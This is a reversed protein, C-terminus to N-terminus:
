VPAATTANTTPPVAFPPMELNRFLVRAQDMDRRQLEDARANIDDEISVEEGYTVDSEANVGQGRRLDNCRPAGVRCGQCNNPAQNAGERLVGGQLRQERFGVHVTLHVDHGIRSRAFHEVSNAFDGALTANGGPSNNQRPAGEVEEVRARCSQPPELTLLGVGRANTGMEIVV